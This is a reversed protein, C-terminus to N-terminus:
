KIKLIKNLDNNFKMAASISIFFILGDLSIKIVTDELVEGTEDLVEESTVKKIVFNQRTKEAKQTEKIRMRKNWNNSM